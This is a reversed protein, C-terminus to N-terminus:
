SNWLRLGLPVFPAFDVENATALAAGALIATAAIMSDRRQTRKIRPLQFLQGFLEAETSGFSVIGGSLVADLAKCDIRTVPRSHFEMWAVAAAGLNRGTGAAAEVLASHRHTSDVFAILLNTGFHIM